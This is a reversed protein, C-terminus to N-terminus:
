HPLDIKLSATQDSTFDQTVGDASVTGTPRFTLTASPADAPVAFAWNVDTDPHVALADDTPAKVPHAVGDVTISLSAARHDTFTAGDEHHKYKTTSVILWAQGAPAWGLAPDFGTLGVSNIKLAWRAEATIKKPKQQGTPDQRDAGATAGDTPKATPQKETPTNRDTEGAPVELQVQYPDTKLRKGIKGTLKSRQYEVTSVTSTLQGGALDVSQGAGDTTASLSVPENAPVTALVTIVTTRPACPYTGSSSAACPITLTSSSGAAGTQDVIPLRTTGALLKLATSPDHDKTPSGSSAPVTADAPTSIKLQLAYLKQGPAPLHYAAQGAPNDQGAVLAGPVNKPEAVGTVAITAAPTIVSVPKAPATFDLGPPTANGAVAVARNTVLSQPARPAPVDSAPSPKDGSPSVLLGTDVAVGQATHTGVTAVANGDSDSAFSLRYRDWVRDDSLGLRRIPGCVVQDSVGKADKGAKSYFCETASSVTVTNNQIGTYNDKKLLTLATELPQAPDALKQGTAAVRPACGSGAILVAVVGILAM